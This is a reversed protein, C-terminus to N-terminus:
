DIESFRSIAQVEGEVGVAELWEAAPRLMEIDGMNGGIYRIGVEDTAEIIVYGDVRYRSEPDKYHRYISGEPIRTRVFEIAKSAEGYPKHSM